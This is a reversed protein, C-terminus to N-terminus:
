YRFYHRAVKRCIKCKGDTTRNFVTMEHLDRKCYGKRHPKRSLEKWKRYQAKKVNGLYPFLKEMLLDVDNGIAIWYWKKGWHPYKKSYYPGNIRGVGIANAFRDLVERDNSQAVTAQLYRDKTLTTCGEGDYFGASWALEIEINM